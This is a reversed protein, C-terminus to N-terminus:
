RARRRDSRHAPARARAVAAEAIVGNMREVTVPKRGPDHLLGGLEAVTRKKARLLVTGNPLLTFHLLDGPELKLRDRIERPVTTQGKSTLTADPM